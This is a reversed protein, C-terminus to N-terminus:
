KKNEFYTQEEFSTIKFLNEGIIALHKGRNIGDEFEKNLIFGLGWSKTELIWSAMEWKALGCSYEELIKCLKDPMGSALDKITLISGISDKGGPMPITKCVDVVKHILNCNECQCYKEIINSNEDLVSFVVFSFAINHRKDDAPLLRTWAPECHCTVEHLIPIAM